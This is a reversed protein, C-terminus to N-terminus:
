VRSILEDLLSRGLGKPTCGGHATCVMNVEDGALQTKLSRIAAKNEEPHADFVMPTPALQNQKYVMIDGAFLVGDYLFVYSGATHGPVPFAKVTKGEGVDFTAAGTMPADVSLPPPPVALMMAKAVLIEQPVKGEALAVDAAGLHRRAKPLQGAGAIHDPHAHTIFLDSVADRGAQLAGLAADLPRGEPDLGADFFIVRGGIKAAYVHIGWANTVEVLNPKVVKAESVQTRGIRLAGAGLAGLAAIIVILVFFGKIRRM